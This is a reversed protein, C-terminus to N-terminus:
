RLDRVRPFLVTNEEHIHQHLDLELRALAELLARRTRYLAGATDHDNALERLAALADGTAQHKQEHAALVRADVPTDDADAARCAAFLAREESQM